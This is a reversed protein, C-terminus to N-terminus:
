DGSPHQRVQEKYHSWASNGRCRHPVPGSPELSWLSRSSKGVQLMEPMILSSPLGPGVLTAVQFSNRWQNLMSFTRGPRFEPQYRAAQPKVRGIKTRLPELITQWEKGWPLFSRIVGATEWDKHIPCDVQWNLSWNLIALWGLFMM